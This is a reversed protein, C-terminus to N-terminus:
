LVNEHSCKACKFSRRQEPDLQVLVADARFGVIKVYKGLLGDNMGAVPLEHQGLRVITSSVMEGRVGLKVRIWQTGSGPLAFHLGPGKLGRYKGITFLAFREQEGAIKLNFFMIILVVATIPIITDM